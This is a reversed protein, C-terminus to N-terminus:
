EGLARRLHGGHEVLLQRAAEPTMGTRHVLIALKVSGGVRELLELAAEHSLSTFHCTTRLARDRLKDCSMYLDVMRNRYLKGLQIM